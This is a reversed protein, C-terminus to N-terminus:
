HAAHGSARKSRHDFLGAYHGIGLGAGLVGLETLKPNAAITGLAQQWLTPPPAFLQRTADAMASATEQAGQIMQPGLIAGLLTGGAKLYGPGPITKGAKVAAAIRASTAAGGVVGGGVSEEIFPLIGGATEKGSYLLDGGVGGVVTGTMAGLIAGVPGGYAMGAVSGALAGLGSGGMGYLTQELNGGHAIFNGMAAVVIATEIPHDVAFGLARGAWSNGFYSSGNKGKTEANVNNNIIVTPGKGSDTNKQGHAVLAGKSTSGTPGIAGQNSVFEGGDPGGAPERPHEAENWVASHAAERNIKAKALEGLGVTKQANLPKAMLGTGAHITRYGKSRYVEPTETALVMAEGGNARAHDELGCLVAGAVGKGRHDPHTVLWGAEYVDHAALGHSTMGYGIVQGHQDRAIVGAGTKVDHAFQAKEDPESALHAHVLHTVAHMDALTAQSISFCGHDDRPHEAEEFAKALEGLRSSM